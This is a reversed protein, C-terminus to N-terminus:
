WAFSRELVWRQPIVAFRHPENRIVIQVSANLLTNVSEVFPKGAYRGDVLM